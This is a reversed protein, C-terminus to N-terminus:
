VFNPCNIQLLPLLFNHMTQVNFSKTFISSIYLVLVIVKESVMDSKGSLLEPAMWPLTGRVGGSVLTHQKV